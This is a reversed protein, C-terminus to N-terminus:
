VGTELVFVDGSRNGLIIKGSVEGLACYIIDERLDYTQISYIIQGDLAQPILGLEDHHCTLDEKTPVDPDQRKVDLDSIVGHFDSSLPPTTLRCSVIQKWTSGRKREIWVARMGQPGMAYTTVFSSSRVPTGSSSRLMPLREFIARDRVAASTTMTLTPWTPFRSTESISQSQRQQTRSQLPIHNAMAYIATLRVDLIPLQGSPVTIEVVFYFLGQIIDSALMKLIYHTGGSESSSDEEETLAETQVDSIQVDRFNYSPFVHRLSPSFSPSAPSGRPDAVTFHPMPYLEISRTKFVFIYRDGLIRLSLITTFMEEMEDLHSNSISTSAINKESWQVLEVSGLHSFAIIREPPCLQRVIRSSPILFTHLLAFHLKSPPDSLLIEYLAAAWTGPLHARTIVTLLKEGMDDLGARFSATKDNGTHVFCWRRSPGEGEEPSGIDWLNMFGDAYVALIWRDSFIELGLLIEGRKNHLEVPPSERPVLWLDDVLENSIALAELADASWDELGKRFNPPVPLRTRQKQIQTSWILKDKSVAALHTCTQRLSLIDFANLYKFFELIVETPLSLLFM